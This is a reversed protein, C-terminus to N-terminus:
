QIVEDARALLSPPITLGLAKATKLNILLEFKTPQEVPLDAPKTGKLIKDVYQAAQRWLGSLSVGYAVLGGADAGESYPSVSPLRQKLALEAISRRLDFLMPDGLVLLGRVREKTMLAFQSELDSGARAESSVLAISLTRAADQVAKWRNGNPKYAPNWLVAVRAVEPAAVKLLELRKGWIEESVDFTVGTM